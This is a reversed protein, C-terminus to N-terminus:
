EDHIEVITATAGETVKRCKSSSSARASDPYVDILKKSWGGTIIKDNPTSFGDNTGQSLTEVSPSTTGKPTEASDTNMSLLESNEMGMNHEDFSTKATFKTIVSNDACLKTVIIRCPQFANLDEMKVSVKFLFKKGMLSNLETPYEKNVGGRTLQALRLDSASIGLFKSVEKDYLLFSATDTEDAVRMNISFRPTHSSPYTECRACHYSNEAEQLSHFCHKCSKYWWGNKPDISIVTGITVFLGNEISDKLESIPKYISHNLLDEELSYTPEGPIQSVQTAAPVGSIIVSKRFDKVEQFDGNIHLISNYNTNSIGMTGKFLNFKAFQIILIYESTPTEEMHKVLKTAFEEWLTCRITGNGRLDDLEIVIYISKKGNKTFEIIDGKAPLLGIVDILHSQANTHNLIVENPVFRFIHTPFLPDQVVRLQTDRKFYIRSFMIPPKTSSTMRLLQNDMVVLELMPKQFKQEATSLTWIKIVRVKIRYSLNDHSADIDKVNNFTSAM